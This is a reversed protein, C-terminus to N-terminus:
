CDGRDKVEQQLKKERRAKNIRNRLQNKGAGLKKEMKGITPYYGEDILRCFDDDTLEHDYGFAECTFVQKPRGPKRLEKKELRLIRREFDKQMREQKQCLEAIKLDKRRNAEILANVLFHIGSNKDQLVKALLEDSLEPNIPMPNLMANNNSKM